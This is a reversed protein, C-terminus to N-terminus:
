FVCLRNACRRNGACEKGCMGCNNKDKRLDVECGDAYDGNCDAFGTQCIAIKCVKDQCLQVGNAVPGCVKGCMGCNNIDNQIITECGNKFSGDCDRFSSNCNAVCKGSTCSASAANPPTDCRTGCTGCNAPDKSTVIECGDSDSNNCNVYGSKCPGMSCTGSSCLTSANPYTRCVNRCAGCNLPDTSPTSECGDTIDNNCNAYGPDCMGIGCAGASCSPTANLPDCVNGCGGCNNVDTQLPAECGDGVSNNCNAYGAACMGLGCRSAACTSTANPLVPCARDCGGCHATSTATNTECGDMSGNVCDRFTGACAALACMGNVCAPMGNPPQPCSNGCFGCNNRDNQINVNCSQAAGDPCSRMPATCSALACTGDKCEAAGNQVGPCTTGCSGCSRPDLLLNTECGDAPDRNCDAFGLKCSRIGCSGGRCGRAGNMVEPCVKGCAGCNDPDTTTEVECADKGTHNCDRRGAPCAVCNGSACASTGDAAGECARGCSGCHQSNNRTDEQCGAESVAPAECGTLLLCMVFFLAASSFLNKNKKM